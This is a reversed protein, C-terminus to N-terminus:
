KTKTLKLTVGDMGFIDDSDIIDYITMKGGGISINGSLVFDAWLYSMHVQITNENLFTYNGELYDGDGSMSFSENEGFTVYIQPQEDVQWTGIIQNEIKNSMSFWILIVFSAVFVTGISISIKTSKKITDGKVKNKSGIITQESM